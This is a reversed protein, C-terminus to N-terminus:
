NAGKYPDHALRGDREIHRKAAEIADKKSYGYYTCESEIGDIFANIQYGKGYPAISKVKIEILKNTTM